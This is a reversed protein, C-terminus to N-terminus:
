ADLADGNWGLHLRVRGIVGEQNLDNLRPRMNTQRPAHEVLGLGTEPDVMPRKALHGQSLVGSTSTSRRWVARGRRSPWAADARGPRAAAEGSVIRCAEDLPLGGLQGLDEERYDSTDEDRVSRFRPTSMEDNVYELVIRVRSGISIEEHECDSNNVLVRAGEGQTGDLRVIGVRVPRRGVHRPAASPAGGHLQVRHGHGFKQCAYSILYPPLQSAGRKTYPPRLTSRREALAVFYADASPM